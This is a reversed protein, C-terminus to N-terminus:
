CNKHDKNNQNITFAKHTEWQNSRNIKTEVEGCVLILRVINGTTRSLLYRAKDWTTGRKSPLFFTGNNQFYTM